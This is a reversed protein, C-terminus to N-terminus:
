RRLCLPQSVPRLLYHSHLILGVRSAHIQEYGSQLVAPSRLSLSFVQIIMWSHLHDAPDALPGNDNSGPIALGIGGGKQYESQYSQTINRLTYIQGIIARDLQCLVAVLALCLLVVTAFHDRVQFLAGVLSPLSGRVGQLYVDISVLTYPKRSLLPWLTPEAITTAVFRSVM